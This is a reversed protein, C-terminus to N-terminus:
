KLGKKELLFSPVLVVEVKHQIRCEPCFPVPKIGEKTFMYERKYMFVPFECQKHQCTDLVKEM